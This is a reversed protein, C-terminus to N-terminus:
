NPNNTKNSLKSHPFDAFFIYAIPCVKLINAFYYQRKKTTIEDIIDLFEPLLDTKKYM